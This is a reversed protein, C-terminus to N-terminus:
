DGNPQIMLRWISPSVSRNMITSLSLTYDGTPIAETNIYAQYPNIETIQSFTIM